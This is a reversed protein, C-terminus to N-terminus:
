GALRADYHHFMCAGMTHDYDIAGREALHGVRRPGVLGSKLLADARDAFYRSRFDQAVSM